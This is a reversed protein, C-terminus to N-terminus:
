ECKLLGSIFVLCHCDPTATEVVQPGPKLESCLKIFMAVFLPIPQM